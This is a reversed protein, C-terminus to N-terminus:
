ASAPTYRLMVRSGDKLGSRFTPGWGVWQVYYKKGFRDLIQMQVATDTILTGTATIQPAKRYAEKSDKWEGFEGVWMRASLGLSVARARWAKSSTVVYIDSGDYTFWVEAHCTSEAGAKKLPTIYITDSKGLAKQTADNVAAAVARFPVAGIALATGCLQLITRRSTM